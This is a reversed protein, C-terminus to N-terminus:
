GRKGQTEKLTEKIMEQTGELAMAESLGPELRFKGLNQLAEVFETISEKVQRGESASIWTYVFREPEM